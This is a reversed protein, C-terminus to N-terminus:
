RCISDSRCLLCTVLAQSSCFSSFFCTHYIVWCYSGLGYHPGSEVDRVKTRTELTRSQPRPVSEWVHEHQITTARACVLSGQTIVTWHCALAHHPLTCRLPRTPQQCDTEIFRADYAELKPKCAEKFRNSQEQTGKLLYKPCGKRPALSHAAHKGLETDPSRSNTGRRGCPAGLAPGCLRSAAWKPAPSDSLPVPGAALQTLQDEGATRGLHEDGPNTQGRTALLRPAPPSCVAHFHTHSPGCPPAPASSLLPPASAAPPCAGPRSAAGASPPASASPSPPSPAGRGRVGM